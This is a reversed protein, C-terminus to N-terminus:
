RNVTPLWRNIQNSLGMWAHGLCVLGEAVAEVHEQERKRAAGNEANQRALEWQEQATRIILKSLREPM